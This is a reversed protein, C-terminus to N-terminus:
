HTLLTRYSDHLQPTKTKLCFVASSIRMLSQLESTHEESRKGSKIRSSHLSKSSCIASFVPRMLARVAFILASAASASVARRKCVMGPTPGNVARATSAKAGGISRKLHPRSQEGQRPRTGRYKEEPQLLRRPRM